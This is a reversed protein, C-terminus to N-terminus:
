GRENILRSYHANYENASIIREDYVLKGNIISYSFCKIIPDAYIIRYTGDDVIKEISWIPKGNEKDIQVSALHKGNKDTYDWSPMRKKYFKQNREGLWRNEDAYSDRLCKEQAQVKDVCKYVRHTKIGIDEDKGNVTRHIVIENTETSRFTSGDGDWYIADGREIAEKRYRDAKGEKSMWSFAAAGGCFLTAFFSLM